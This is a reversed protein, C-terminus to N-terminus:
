ISEMEVQQKEKRHHHCGSEQRLASSYQKDEVLMSVTGTRKYVNGNVFMLLEMKKDKRLTNLASVSLLLIQLFINRKMSRKMIVYEKDGLTYEFLIVGNNNNGITNGFINFCTLVTFLGGLILVLLRSKKRSIDIIISALVVILYVLGNVWSFEDYPRVIDIVCNLIVFIMTFVNKPEQLLPIILYLSMNKYFFNAVFVIALFSAVISMIGVIRNKTLNHVFFFVIAAFGMLSMGIQAWKIRFRLSEDDDVAEEKGLVTVSRTNRGSRKRGTSVQGTGDNTNNDTTNGRLDTGTEKYIKATVFMLLNMEKDRFLTYLGRLCFVLIQAFLTRKTSRVMFTHKNGSITYHFLVKGVELDEFIRRYINYLNLITFFAGFTLVFARSKEITADLFVTGFVILMYFLGFLASVNSTPIFIDILFVTIGSILIIKVNGQQCLLKFVAFSINNYYFTIFCVMAFIAFICTLIYFTVNQGRAAIFFAAAILGCFAIGCQSWKIRMTNQAIEIESGLLKVSKRKVQTQAQTDWSNFRERTSSGDHIELKIEKPNQELRDGKSRSQMQDMNQM